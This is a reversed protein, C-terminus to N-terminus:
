ALVSSTTLTTQCLAADDGCVSPETANALNRWHAGMYCMSGEARGLGCGLHCRLVRGMYVPWLCTAM